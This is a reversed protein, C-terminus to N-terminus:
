LVFSFLVFIYNKSLDIFEVQQLDKNKAINKFANRVDATKLDEFEETKNSFIRSPFLHFFVFLDFVRKQKQFLDSRFKWKGFYIEKLVKGKIVCTIIEIDDANFPM